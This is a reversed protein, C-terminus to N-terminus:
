SPDTSDTDADTSDSDADTSDADDATDTDDMDDSDGPAEMGGEGQTEMDEDSFSTMERRESPHRFAIRCRISEGGGM